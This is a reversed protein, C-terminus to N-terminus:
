FGTDVYGAAPDPKSFVLYGATLFNRLYKSFIGRFGESFILRKNLFRFRNWFNYQVHNILIFNDIKLISHFRLETEISLFYKHQSVTLWSDHFIWLFYWQFSRRINFYQQYVGLSERNLNPKITSCNESSPCVISDRSKTPSVPVTKLISCVRCDSITLTREEFIKM